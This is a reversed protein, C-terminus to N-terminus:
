HTRRLVLVAIDDRREASPVNALLEAVLADPSATANGTAVAILRDRGAEIAEQHHEVLGDTYCILSDGVGLECVTTRRTSPVGIPPGPQADFWDYTGDPHVLLPPHHGALTYRLAGTALDLRGYFLTSAFVDPTHTSYEDLHEVVAAPDDHGHSLGTLANRIQSMAIAADLDHGVADGVVVTIDGPRVEVVEYWDGGVRLGSTGAEYRAQIAYGDLTPVSTPLLGAQLRRAIAREQAVSERLVRQEERHRTVEVVVVGAGIVEGSATRVPYFGEEWVRTVGPQAPTEGTIEVGTLSEGDDLVRRLVPTVQEALTPVVEQISRGLHDDASLGNTEALRDNVHSYRLNRDIFAFGVPAQRLLTDLLAAIRDSEDSVWARQLAAGCLAVAPALEAIDIEDTPESWALGIAARVTGNAMRVPYAALAQLGLREADDAGSPFRERLSVPDGAHVPQGTLVATGLPTSEDLPVTAWREAVTLDTGDPQYLELQHQGPTAIALNGFVASAAESLNNVIANAVEDVTRSAALSGALLRLTELEAVLRALALTNPDDLAGNAARGNAADGNAAV